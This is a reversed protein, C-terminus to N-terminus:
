RDDRHIVSSQRVQRTTPNELRVTVRIAEPHVDFPPSTERESVGDVGPYPPTTTADDDIGNAGLDAGATTTTWLTGEFINTSADFRSNQLFGDREYSSTYTDFTPQFLRIQNTGNVVLKGSHYLSPRYANNANTSALLIGSFASVLFGRNGVIVQSSDSSSTSRRDVTRATWGRLSGGALSTYALDVFGGTSLGAPLRLFPLDILSANLAGRYGADGPGVVLGSSADAIWFATPDYIQVDFGVANNVLLDEGLRANASWYADSPDPHFRDHGLVFEPRLFGCWNYPPLWPITPRLTPALNPPSATEM